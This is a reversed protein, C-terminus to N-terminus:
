EGGVREFRAEFRHGPSYVTYRGSWWKVLYDGKAAYWEGGNPIQVYGTETIQRAEVIKNSV